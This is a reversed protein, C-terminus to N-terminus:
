ILGRVLYTYLLMFCCYMFTYKIYVVVQTLTYWSVAHIDRSSYTHVVVDTLAYWSM